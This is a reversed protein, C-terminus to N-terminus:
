RIPGRRLEPSGPSRGTSGSTPRTRPGPAPSPGGIASRCSARSSWNWAPSTDLSSAGAAPAAPSAPRPSPRRCSAVIPAPMPDYTAHSVVLYSGSPMAEVLRAVIGYPDETDDVFHLVALLILGVPERLDLVADLDPHSLIKEPERLDAELYATAGERSSTLLARAHALVIPDNDVYVIRSGPAIRQAVQHTNDVTPLGTGIDLFQRVGAERVLFEMTRRLFKRNERVAAKISPFAAAIADGSDRDAAFNDKGGLWYNYRRAPHAVGADFESVPQSMDTVPLELFRARDPRM